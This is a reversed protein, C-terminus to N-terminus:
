KKFTLAQQYKMNITLHPCQQCFLWEPDQRHFKETHIRSMKERFASYNDSFWAEKLTKNKLTGMSYKSICCGLIDSNADIRMYEMGINCAHHDYYNASTGGNQVAIDNKETYLDLNIPEFIKYKEFKPDYEPEFFFVEKLKYCHYIPTVDARAFAARLTESGAITDEIQNELPYTKEIELLIDANQNLISHVVEADKLQVKLRSALEVAVNLLRVYEPIEEESILYALTEKGHIEIPKYWLDFADVLKALGVLEPIDKYNLKNTVSMVTFSIGRSDRRVLESAYSMHKVIKHFVEEKQNPRNIVYSKANAASLNIFFHISHPVDGTLSHLEEIIDKTMYAFNAFCTVRFNRARAAKLFEVIHPHTFPDGAGGFQVIETDEGLSEIVNLCHERDIKTSMFQKIHDPIKGNGDAKYKEMSKDTYLNCFVCNHTCANSVDIDVYHPGRFINQTRANWSERMPHTPSFYISMNKDGYMRYLKLAEAIKHADEELLVENPNLIVMPVKLNSLGLLTTFLVGLADPKLVIECAISFDKAYLNTLEHFIKFAPSKDHPFSDRTLELPISNIEPNILPVSLCLHNINIKKLKSMWPLSKKFDEVSSKFFIRDSNSALIKLLTFKMIEDYRSDLEALVTEKKQFQSVKRLHELQHDKQYKIFIEKM